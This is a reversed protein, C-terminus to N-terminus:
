SLWALGFVGLVEVICSLLLMRCWGDITGLLVCLLWYGEEIGMIIGWRDERLSRRILLRVRDGRQVIRGRVRRLGGFMRWGRVGFMQM